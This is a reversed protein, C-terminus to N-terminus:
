REPRAAPTAAVDDLCADPLHLTVEVRGADVGRRAAAAPAGLAADTPAPGIWRPPALRFLARRGAVAPLLTGCLVNALEGLADRRLPEAPPEDTGLMIAAAAALVDETARVVVAGACPGAFDLRIGAPLPADGPATATADSSLLLGLEEFATTTASSLAAHLQQRNM